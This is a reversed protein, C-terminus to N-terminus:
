SGHANAPVIRRSPGSPRIELADADLRGQGIIFGAAGGALPREDAAELKLQGDVRGRIQGGRVELELRRTDGFTWTCEREALTRVVGAARMLRLRNPHEFVLAYYRNLGGIRAAVGAVQCLQPTMTSAVRYDKWEATGQSIMGIGRNQILRFSQPWEDTWLDVADVWARRWMQGDSAPRTLTVTPSGTWTLYDLFVRGRSASPAIDVGVTAIPSGGNDPVRWALVSGRRGMNKWPGFTVELSDDAGYWGVFLRGAAQGGTSTDALLKARLLQGPHLTPSAMLQYGGLDREEPLIFTPTAARVWAHQQLASTSWDIALRHHGDGNPAPVSQIDAAIGDSAQVAFGQMAGPAEFHFRAGNKPHVAELGRMRRGMNVVHVAETLADTIARGGDATPLFMRDRVPDRWDARGDNFAPLGGRIGMLCGVNGCNSDTDWGATVCISLTQDFRGDGYLLSLLIVGHNPVVPVNGEYRAYGHEKSLWERAKRWDPEDGHLELIGEYLRGIASDPPVSRRGVDVLALIDREVFAQAEMAALAQAAYVAEGDHSVSAARRAFDAALEPQGPALMAWGDIFIEAGIEEAILNGNLERSGSRPAPIGSALRLFATHESANGLGGWWLITRNEIIYNLWTRGIDAASVDPRYGCDEVARVFTFTGTIDDDTVVLRQGLRQAVYGDIQGLEARIREYTWGEVPRGLYVGIIKGTVGAYVRDAYDPPLEM